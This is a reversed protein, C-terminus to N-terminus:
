SGAIPSNFLGVALEICLLLFVIVLFIIWGIKVTKSKIKRFIFDISLGLTLLLTGMIVFDFLSWNIENSFQMGLLPVLLLIFTGAFIILQNKHLM